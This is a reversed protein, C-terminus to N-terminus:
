SALPRGAPVPSGFTRRLFRNLVAARFRMAAACLFRHAASFAGAFLVFGVAIELRRLAVTADLVLFRGILLSVGFDAAPLTTYPRQEALRSCHIGLGL